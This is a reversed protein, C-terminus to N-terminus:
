YINVIDINKYYSSLIEEYTKGNKVMQNAGYLSLGVCHGYGGGYLTIKKLYGNNDYIKDFVFYTSPVSNVNQVIEGNNDIVSKLTIVKKIILDSMLLVTNNDGVIELEM